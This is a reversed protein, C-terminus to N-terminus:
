LEMQEAPHRSVKIQFARQHNAWKKAKRIAKDRSLATFTPARYTGLFHQPVVECAAHWLFLGKQLTAFYRESM